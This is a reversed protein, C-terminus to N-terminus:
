PHPDSSVSCAPSVASATANAPPSTSANRRRSADPSRRQNRAPGGPMPIAVSLAHPLSHTPTGGARAPTREAPLPGAIRAATRPTMTGGSRRAANAAADVAIVCVSGRASAPATSTAARACTASVTAGAAPGAQNRAAAAVPRPSKSGNVRFKPM